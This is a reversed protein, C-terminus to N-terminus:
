RPNKPITDTWTGLIRDSGAAGYALTFSPDEHAGLNWLLAADLDNSRIAAAANAYFEYRNTPSGADTLSARGGRRLGAQTRPRRRHAV